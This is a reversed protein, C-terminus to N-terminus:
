DDADSTVIVAETESMVQKESDVLINVIRSVHSTEIVFSNQTSATMPLGQHEISQRLSEGYVLTFTHSNILGGYNNIGDM